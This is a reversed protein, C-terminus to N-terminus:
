IKSLCLCVNGENNEYIAGILYLWDLCLIYITISIDNVQKLKIYLDIFSQMNDKKLEQIIIGGNFYLCFKPNISNPMLM